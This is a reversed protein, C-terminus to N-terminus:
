LTEEANEWRPMAWELGQVLSTVDEMLTDIAHIAALNPEMGRERRAKERAKLVWVNLCLVALFLDAAQLLLPVNSLNRERIAVLLRTGSKAANVAIALNTLAHIKGPSAAHQPDGLGRLESSSRPLFARHVIIQILNYTIYLTLSQNALVPDEIDSSWRVASLTLNIVTISLWPAHMVYSSLTCRKGMAYSSCENAAPDGRTAQGREPRAPREM